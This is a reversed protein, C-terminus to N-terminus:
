LASNIITIAKDYKGYDVLTEGFFDQLFEDLTMGYTNQFAIDISKIKAKTKGALTDWIVQDKDKSFYGGQAEKMAIADAKGDYNPDADTNLLAGSITGDHSSVGTDIAERLKKLEAKRKDSNKSLYTVLYIVGIILVLIGVGIYIQKKSM